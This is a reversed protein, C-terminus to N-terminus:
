FKSEGGEPIHSRLRILCDQVFVLTRRGWTYTVKSSNSQGTCFSLNEEGM